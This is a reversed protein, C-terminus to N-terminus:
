FDRVFLLNCFTQAALTYGKRLGLAALAGGAPRSLVIAM